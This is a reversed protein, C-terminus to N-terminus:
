GPSQNRAPRLGQNLHREIEAHEIQWEKHPGRGSARRTGLMRGTRLWERVQYPTRNVREAVEEVSYFDKVRKSALLDDLRRLISAQTREIETLRGDLEASLTM